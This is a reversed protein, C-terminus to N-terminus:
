PQYIRALWSSTLPVISLVHSATLLWWLAHDPEIGKPSTVVLGRRAHDTVKLWGPELGVEFRALKALANPGSGHEVGLTARGGATEPAFWTAMPVAEGRASFVSVVLNRPPPEHGEEVEPVFNVWGSAADAMEILVSVVESPDEEDFTIERTPSVAM